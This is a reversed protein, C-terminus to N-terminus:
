NLRYDILYSIEIKDRDLEDPLRKFTSIKKFLDLTADNLRKFPCEKLLRIDTIEGGRLITFSVHVQGEQGKKQALLPYEKNEEIFQKLEDHFRSLAKSSKVTSSIDEQQFGEETQNSVKTLAGENKALYQKKLVKKAPSASSHSLQVFEIPIQRSSLTNSSLSSSFSPFFVSWHMIMLILGLHLLFSVLLTKKIGM